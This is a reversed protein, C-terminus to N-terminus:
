GVLAAFIQFASAGNEPIKEKRIMDAAEIEALVAAAYHAAKFGM